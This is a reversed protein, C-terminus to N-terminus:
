HKRTLTNPVGIGFFNKIFEYGGYIALGIASYKSVKKGGFLAGIGGLLPVAHNVLMSTFGKCYGIGENFFRRWSSNLEMNYAMGKVGDQVKSMSNSYLDNNLYYLAADADHDSAYLDSEIKAIHHADYGVMGLTALGVWKAPSKIFNKFGTLAVM